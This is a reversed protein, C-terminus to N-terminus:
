QPQGPSLLDEAHARRLLSQISITTYNKTSALLAPHDLNSKPFTSSKNSGLLIMLLKYHFPQSTRVTRLCHQRMCLDERDRRGGQPQKGQQAVPSAALEGARYPRDTSGWQPTPDSKYSSARSVQEHTRQLQNDPSIMATDVGGQLRPTIHGKDGYRVLSFTPLEFSIAIRYGQRLVQDM